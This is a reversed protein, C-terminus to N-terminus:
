VVRGMLARAYAPLRRYVMQCILAYCRVGQDEERSACSLMAARNAAYHGLDCTANVYGMPRDPFLERALGWGRSSAYWFQILAGQELSSAIKDVGLLADTDAV